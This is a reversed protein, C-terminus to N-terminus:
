HQPLVHFLQHQELKAGFAAAAPPPQSPACCGGLSSNGDLVIVAGLHGLSHWAGAPLLCHTLFSAPLAADASSGRKPFFIKLGNVLQSVGGQGSTVRVNM